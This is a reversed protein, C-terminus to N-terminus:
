CVVLLTQPLVGGIAEAWTRPRSLVVLLQARRASRPRELVPPDAPVAQCTPAAGARYSSSGGSPVIAHNTARTAPASGLLRIYPTIIRHGAIIDDLDL